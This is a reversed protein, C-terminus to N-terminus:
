QMFKNKKSHYEKILLFLIFLFIPILRQMKLKNVNVTVTEVRWWTSRNQEYSYRQNPAATTGNVDLVGSTGATPIGQGVNVTSSSNNVFVYYYQGADKAATEINAAFAQSTLGGALLFSACLTLVKKNM